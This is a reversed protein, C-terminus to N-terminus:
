LSELYGLSFVADDMDKEIKIDIVEMISKRRKDLDNSFEVLNLDIEPEFFVRLWELFFFHNINKADRQCQHNSCCSQRVDNYTEISYGVNSRCSKRRDPREDKDCEEIRSGGRQCRERSVIQDRRKIASRQACRLGCSTDM